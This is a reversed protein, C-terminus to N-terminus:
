EGFTPKKSTIKGQNKSYKAMKENIKRVNPIFIKEAILKIPSALPFLLVSLVSVFVIILKDILLKGAKKIYKSLFKDTFAYTLLSLVLMYVRFIGDTAAYLVVSFLLGFSVTKVTDFIFLAVPNITEGLTIKSKFIRSLRRPNVSYTPLAFLIKFIGGASMSMVFLLSSILSFIAGFSVSIFISRLTENWTFFDM